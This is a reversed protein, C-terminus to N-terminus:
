ELGAMVTDLAKDGLEGALKCLGGTVGYTAVIADEEHMAIIIVAVAGLAKAVRKAEQIEPNTKWGADAM